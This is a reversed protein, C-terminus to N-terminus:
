KGAPRQGGVRMYVKSPRPESFVGTLLAIPLMYSTLTPVALGGPRWGPRWSRPFPIVCSFRHTKQLLHFYVHQIPHPKPNPRRNRHSSAPTHSQRTASAQPQETPPSHHSPIIDLSPSYALQRVLSAHGSPGRAQLGPVPQARQKNENQVAHDPM